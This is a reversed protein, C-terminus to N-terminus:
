ATLTSSTEFYEEILTLLDVVADLHRGTRVTRRDSDYLIVGADHLKPLHVHHIDIPQTDPDEARNSSPRDTQTSHTSLQDVTTVGGTQAVQKVIQRRQPHSLLQLATEITLAQQSDNM